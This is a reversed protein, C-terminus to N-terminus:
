PRFGRVAEYHLMIEKDEGPKTEVLNLTTQGKMPEWYRPGRGYVVPMVFFWYDDALNRRLCERVVAPGGELMINGGKERKLKTLIKALDGSLIRSNEWDTSKLRQSLCIKEVRDLYRRYELLWKPEGPKIAKESWTRQHGLFSRRGMVVTTVDDFRDFWMHRFLANPETLKREVEPYKPFEGRGDLTMYVNATIKRMKRVGRNASVRSVEGTDRSSVHVFLCIDM